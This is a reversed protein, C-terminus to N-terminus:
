MSIIVNDMFKISILMKQNYITLKCAINPPMKALGQFSFLGMFLIEEGGNRLDAVTAVSTRAKAVNADACTTVTGVVGCIPEDLGMVAAGRTGRGLVVGQTTGRNM